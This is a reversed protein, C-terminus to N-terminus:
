SAAVLGAHILWQCGAAHQVKFCLPKHCPYGGYERLAALLVRLNIHAMVNSASIVDSANSGGVLLFALLATFRPLAAIYLWM